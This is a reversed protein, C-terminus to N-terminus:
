NSSASTRPWLITVPDCGRPAFRMPPSGSKAAFQQEVRPAFYTSVMGTRDQDGHNAASAVLVTWTGPKHRRIEGAQATM